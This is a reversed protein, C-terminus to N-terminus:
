TFSPLLLSLRVIGSAKAFALSKPRTFRSVLTAEPFLLLAFATGRKLNDQANKVIGSNQLLNKKDIFAFKFWQM